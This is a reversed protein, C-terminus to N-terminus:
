PLLVCTATSCCIEHLIYISPLVPLCALTHLSSRWACSLLQTEHWGRPTHVKCCLFGPVQREHLNEDGDGLVTKPIESGEPLFMVQPATLMDM